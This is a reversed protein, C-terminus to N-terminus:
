SEDGTTPGTQSTVEALREIRRQYRAEWRRDVTLIETWEDATFASPDDRDGRQIPITEFPVVEYDLDKWYYTYKDSPWDAYVDEWTIRQFHPHLCRRHASRGGAPLPLRGLHAPRVGVVNHLAAHVTM